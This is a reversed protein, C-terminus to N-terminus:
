MQSRLLAAGADVLKQVRSRGRWEAYTIERSRRKDAAFVALQARGFDEDLVNLNAEDNLRFSRNDFNASGVSVWAGDVVLLKCHLMTPQFEFFRAGAELLPGWRSRSADRVFHKDIRPGPVLIEVAVGRRSAEVLTQTTLDDPVFYANELCISRRAAAISFLFMLRASDSGEHPSSKFMQCRQPGAATLAPFYDDGHLVTARTKMWNDVFASQMQAVVPGEVQFHSDRWHHLSDGHGQWNDAIGVGGTFGLRGDVVLLKRHTRNNFRDIDYPEIVNYIEIQVGAARMRRILEGRICNCGLGDLLVHVKVGARARACLAESFDQAIQGQWYIFSELTVSRRANAVAALMAPFIEAGNQLARVCNGGVIAPGLLQGLSREFRPDTVGYDLDIEHSIKKENPIFNRALLTGVTGAAAGYGLLTLPHLRRLKAALM